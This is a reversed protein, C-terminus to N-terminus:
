AKQRYACHGPRPGLTEPHKRCTDPRREYVTCRRTKANLYHCDGSARRALTFLAYRHNFHEVVGARQLRKAIQRPDEDLEFEDVVGIRVLDWGHLIKHTRM